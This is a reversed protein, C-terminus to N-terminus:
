ARDEIRRGPKQSGDPPCTGYQECIYYYNKRWKRSRVSRRDGVNNRKDFLQQSQKIPRGTKLEAGRQPFPKGYNKEMRKLENTFANEALEALTMGPTWYVSNKVKDILDVPIHVTMREKKM